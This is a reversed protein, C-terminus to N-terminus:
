LCSIKYSPANYTYYCRRICVIAPRCAGTREEYSNNRGELPRWYRDLNGKYRLRIIELNRLDLYAGSIYYLSSLPNYDRYYSLLTYYHARLRYQSITEIAGELNIRRSIYDIPRTRLSRAM